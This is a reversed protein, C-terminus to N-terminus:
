RDRDLARMIGIRALMTPGGHEAVLLLGETAACRSYGPLALADHNVM